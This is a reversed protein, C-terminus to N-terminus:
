VSVGQKMKKIEEATYEYNGWEDPKTGNNIKHLFNEANGWIDRKKKDQMVWLIWRKFVIPAKEALNRCYGWTAYGGHEKAVDMLQAHLKGIDLTESDENFEWEKSM